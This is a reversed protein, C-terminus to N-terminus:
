GDFDIQVPNAVNPCNDNANLYGDNDIDPDCVDGTGGGDVNAQDPNSDNPCNDCVDGAGDNDSVGGISAALFGDEPTASDDFVAVDVTTLGLDAVAAAVIDGMRYLPQRHLNSEAVVDGDFLMQGDYKVGVAFEKEYETEVPIVTCRHDRWYLHGDASIMLHDPHKGGMYRQKKKDWARFMLNRM